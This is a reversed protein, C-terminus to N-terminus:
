EFFDAVLPIQLKANRVKGQFQPFRSFFAEGTTLFFHTIAVTARDQTAYFIAYRVDCHRVQRGSLVLSGLLDPSSPCVLGLDITPATQLKVELLQHRIDPFQGSDAYTSYGLRQCVLRHLSAGRLRDQDRGPDPFSIGILARLRTFVTSIPLMADASPAAIPSLGRLVAAPNVAPRVVHTDIASVLEACQDGCDLRAQFKQTLTGTTDM